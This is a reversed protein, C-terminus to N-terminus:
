IEKQRKAQRTVREYTVTPNKPLLVYTKALYMPQYGMGASVLSAVAPCARSCERGGCVGVGM